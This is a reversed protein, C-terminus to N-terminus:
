RARRPGLRVDLADASGPEFALPPGPEREPHLAVLRLNRGSPLHKLTFRGSADSERPQQYLFGEGGSARLERDTDELRSRSLEGPGLIVLWAKGAPTGDAELIRGSAEGGRELRVELPGRIESAGLEIPGEFTPAFGAATVAVLYRGAALGDYVFTNPPPRPTGDGEVLARQAIRPKAYLPWWDGDLLAPSGEPILVLELNLVDLSVPAGTAADVVAGHLEADHNGLARPDHRPKLVVELPAGGPTVDRLTFSSHTNSRFHLVHPTAALAPVVVHEPDRVSAAFWENADTETAYMQVHGSSPVASAAAPRGETDLVRVVLEAGRALRLELPPLGQAPMEIRQRQLAFGRERADIRLVKPGLRGGSLRVHGSADTSAGTEGELWNSEGSRMQKLAFVRAGEVARGDEDLVTVDLSWAGPVDLAEEALQVTRYPLTAGPRARLTGDEHRLTGTLVVLEYEEGSEFGVPLELAFRGHRDTVARAGFHALKGDRRVSSADVQASAVPLWLADLVRGDLRAPAFAAPREQPDPAPSSVAPSAGTAAALAVRGEGAAEPELPAAAVLGGAEAVLGGAEAVGALDQGESLLVAVTTAAGALLFAGIALPSLALAAPKLALLRAELGPPVEPPVLEALKEPLSPVLAALGLRALRERLRELARQVRGHASPESISLATGVEAFTLGEGFRLTLAHRLEDPLAEVERALREALEREETVDRKARERESREM